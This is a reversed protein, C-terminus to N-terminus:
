PWGIDIFARARDTSEQLQQNGYETAEALQV